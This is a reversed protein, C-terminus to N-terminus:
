RQRTHNKKDHVRKVFNAYIHAQRTPEPLKYGLLCHRVIEISSKMSVRHGPAVIIPNCNKKSKFVWGIDSEDYRLPRFEGVGVVEEEPTGCLISKAVGITPLDLAVGIHTALGASRPHNIGCGDGMLLEPKEPLEAYASVIARGERFSLFTPIYPFDVAQISYVCDKKKMTTYDLTVIGSVM